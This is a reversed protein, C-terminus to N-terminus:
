SFAKAISWRARKLATAASVWATPSTTLRGELLQLLNEGTNGKRRDAEALLRRFQRELV